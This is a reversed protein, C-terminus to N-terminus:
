EGNESYCFIHKKDWLFSVKKTQFLLESQVDETPCNYCDLIKKIIYGDCKKEIAIHLATKENFDKIAVDIIDKWSVLLHNIYSKYNNELNNEVAYCLASQIQKESNHYNIFDNLTNDDLFYKKMEEYNFSTVLKPNKRM